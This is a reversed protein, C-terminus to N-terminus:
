SRLAPSHSISAFLLDLIAEGSLLGKEFLEYSDVGLEATHNGGRPGFQTRIACYSRETRVVLHDSHESALPIGGGDAAVPDSTALIHLADSPNRLESALEQDFIDNCDEDGPTSAITVSKGAADRVTDDSKPPRSHQLDDKASISPRQRFNGGRRSRAIM